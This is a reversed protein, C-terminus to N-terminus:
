GLKAQYGLAGNREKKPDYKWSDMRYFDPYKNDLRAILLDPEVNVTDVIRQYNAVGLQSVRSMVVTNAENMLGAYSLGTDVFEPPYYAYSTM